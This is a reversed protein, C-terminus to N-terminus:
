KPKLRYLGRSVRIFLETFGGLNCIRHKALFTGGWYINLVKNIQPGRLIAPLRGSQVAARIARITKGEM